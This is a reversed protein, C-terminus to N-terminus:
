IKFRNAAIGQMGPMLQMMKGNWGADDESTRVLSTVVLTCLDPGCFCPMTPAECPLIIREVLTGDPAFRNLCGASVGASWYFGEADCAGGDPRGEENALTALRRRASLIGTRPDFDHANIWPGRTDSHYLTRGDPSWALGNSIVLGTVKTQAKGDPTVRYLAAGPEKQARNDMSGVWFAGDPGVKGDNLRNQPCDPEPQVLLELAEHGSRAPDFLYIGDALAVVLRDSECLGFSAVKQGFHWKALPTGDLRAAQISQGEIDCWLLRQFRDDWIPCEGLQNRFTGFPEIQRDEFKMTM